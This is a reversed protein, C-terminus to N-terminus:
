FWWACDHVSAIVPTLYHSKVSVNVLRFLMFYLTGGFAWWDTACDISWKLLIEPSCYGYQRSDSDLFEFNSPQDDLIVASQFDNLIVHGHKDICISDPNLDLYIVSRRHITELAYAQNPTLLQSM